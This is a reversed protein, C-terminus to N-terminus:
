IELLKEENPTIDVVAYSQQNSIVMEDLVDVMNKYNSGISPKIIVTFHEPELANTRKSIVLNRLDKKSYSIKNVFQRDIEESSKQHWFLRNDNGLLLTMSNSVRVDQVGEDPISQYFPMTKSSTFTTTYIFFTILLFGLDVLPTMDPKAVKRNRTTIEAM